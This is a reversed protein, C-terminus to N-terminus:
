IDGEQFSFRNSTCDDVSPVRNIKPYDNKNSYWSNPIYCWIYENFYKQLSYHGYFNNDKDFVARIIEM